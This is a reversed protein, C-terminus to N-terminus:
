WGGSAAAIAMGTGRGGTFVLATLVVLIIVGGRPRGKCKAGGGAGYCRSDGAATSRQRIRSGFLRRDEGEM